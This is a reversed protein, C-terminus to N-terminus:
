NKVIKPAPVSVAPALAMKLSTLSPQTTQTVYPSLHAPNNAQLAQMVQQQFATTGSTTWDIAGSTGEQVISGDLQKHPKKVFANRPHQSDPYVGARMKDQGLIVKPVPNGSPMATPPWQTQAPAPM